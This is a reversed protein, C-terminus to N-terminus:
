GEKRSEEGCTIAGLVEEGRKDGNEGDFLEAPPLQHQKTGAPLGHTVVRM